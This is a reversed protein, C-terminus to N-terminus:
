QVTRNGVYHVEVQDVPVVIQRGDNLQIPMLERRQEIQHGTREIRERVYSPLINPNDAFLLDLQRADNVVPLDISQREDGQGALTLRIASPNNTAADDPAATLVTSNDNSPPVAAALNSNENPRQGGGGPRGNLWTALGFAVLFSAAVALYTRWAFAKKNPQIITATEGPRQKVADGLVEKWTQAELFALACRRWEDPRQDISLLLARREADPLEGDVLRDLVEDSIDRPQTM